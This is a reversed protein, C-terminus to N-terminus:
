FAVVMGVLGLVALLAGGGVGRVIATRYASLTSELGGDEVVPDTVVLRGDEREAEGVVTAPEGPELRREIFTRPEHKPRPEVDHDSLYEAVDDPVEDPAVDTQLDLDLRLDADVPDVRVRGTAGQVDFPVTRREEVLLDKGQREFESRETVRTELCVSQAGSFPAEFPADAPDGTPEVRGGVAVRGARADGPDPGSASGLQRYTPVSGVGLGVLTLGVLYTGAAVTVVTANPVLELGYRVAFLFGGVAAALGAIGVGVGLVPSSTLDTGLPLGLYAWVLGMGLVVLGVFTASEVLSLPTLLSVAPMVVVLMVLVAGAVRRALRNVVAISGGAVM